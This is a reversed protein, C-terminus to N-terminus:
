IAWSGTRKNKVYISYEFDDAFGTTCALIRVVELQNSNVCTQPTRTKNPKRQLTTSRDQITM